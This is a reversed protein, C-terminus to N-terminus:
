VPPPPPPSPVAPPASPPPTPMPAPGAPVAAAAFFDFRPSMQALFELTFARYTVWVPLLVVTGIYPIILLIWFICCTVVCAIVTAIGLLLYLAFVFLGVLLFHGWRERFVPLFVRWAQTTTLRERHMIPVVFAYLFFSVYTLVLGWALIPLLLTLLGAVPVADADEQLQFFTLLGGPLMVILVSVLVALLYVLLWLFLSNGERRYERWPRQVEARGHVVNDLFMLQGRSGLWILLPIVVLFLLLLFGILCGILGSAVLNESWESWEAPWFSAAAIQGTAAEADDSDWDGVGSPVNFGGGGSGQIFRALWCTLGLVFWKGLDFPRFLQDVMRNWARRLPELYQVAGAPAPSPPAPPPPSTPPPTPPETM